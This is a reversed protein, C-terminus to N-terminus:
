DKLLWEEAQERDYFVKFEPNTRNAELVMERFRGQNVLEPTLLTAVKLTYNSFKLLIAGALGTKLQYFEPTLNDAQILLRHTDNEGCVAVLDLVERESAILNGVGPTCEVYKKVGKQVVITDM